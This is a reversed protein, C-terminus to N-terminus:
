KKGKMHSHIGGNPGVIFISTGRLPYNKAKEFWERAETLTGFKKASNTAIVWQERENLFQEVFGRGTDHWCAIIYGTTM